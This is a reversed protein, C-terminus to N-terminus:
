LWFLNIKLIQFFHAPLEVSAFRCVSMISPKAAKSKVTNKAPRGVTLPQNLMNSKELLHLPWILTVEINGRSIEIKQLQM